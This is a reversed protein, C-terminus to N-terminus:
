IRPHISCKKISLFFLVTGQALEVSVLSVITNSTHIYEYISVAVQPPSRWTSKPRAVRARPPEAHSISLRNFNLEGDKAVEACDGDSLYGEYELEM